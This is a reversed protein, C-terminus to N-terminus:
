GFTAVLPFYIHLKKSFFVTVRKRFHLFHWRTVYHPLYFILLFDGLEWRTLKWSKSPQWSGLRQTVDRCDIVLVCRCGLLQGISRTTTKRGVRCLIRWKPSTEGVLREHPFFALVLAVFAHMWRDLSVVVDCFLCLFVLAMKTVM